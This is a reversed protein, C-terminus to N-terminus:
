KDYSMTYTGKKEKIQAHRKRMYTDGYPTEKIQARKKRM